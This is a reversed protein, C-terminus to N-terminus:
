SPEWTATKRFGLAVNNAGESGARRAAVRVNALDRGHCPAWSGFCASTMACPWREAIQGNEFRYMAAFDRAFSGPRAMIGM